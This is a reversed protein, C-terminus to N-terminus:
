NKEYSHKTKNGKPTEASSSDIYGEYDDILKSADNLITLIKDLVLVRKGLDKKTKEVFMERAKENMEEKSFLKDLHWRIVDEVKVFNSIPMEGINNQILNIVQINKIDVMEENEIHISNEIKVECVITTTTEEKEKLKSNKM